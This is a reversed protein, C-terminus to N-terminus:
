ETFDVSKVNKEQYESKTNKELEKKSIKEIDSNTFVINSNNNVEEKSEINKKTLSNIFNIVSNTQQNSQINKSYGLSYNVANANNQNDSISKTPLTAAAITEKQNTSAETSKKTINIQNESAVVVKTNNNVNTSNSEKVVASDSSYNAYFVSGGGVLVVAPVLLNLIWNGLLSKTISAGAGLTSNNNLSNEVGQWVKNSPKFHLEDASRQLQEEFSNLQPQTM